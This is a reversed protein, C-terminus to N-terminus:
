LSGQLASEVRDARFINAAPKSVAAVQDWGFAFRELADLYPNTNNIPFAEHSDEASGYVGTYKYFEYRRTVSENGDGIPAELVLENAEQQDPPLPNGNEDCTPAAQSLVWEIETESADQPVAPNDILLNELQVHHSAETKYVKVWQAEGFQACAWQEQPEEPIAARVVPNPNIAPDLPLQVNWTVAPISVKTDSTILQGLHNPDEILWHYITNTPNGNLFGLGFHECGSTEYNGIPGGDYCAHGDTPTIVGSGGLLLSPPILTTKTFQNTAPDVPSRYRLYAGVVKGQADLKDEKTPDGYRNWPAGFIWTIDEKHVGELEIEFGHCPGGTDNIVDFNSLTGFANQASATRVTLLFLLLLALPLASLVSVTMNWYRLVRFSKM